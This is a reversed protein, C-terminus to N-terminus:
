RCAASPPGSIPMCSPPSNATEVNRDAATEPAQGIEHDVPAALVAEHGAQARQAPEGIEVGSSLSNMMASWKEPGRARVSGAHSMVSMYAAKGARLPWTM